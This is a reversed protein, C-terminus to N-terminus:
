QAAAVPKISSVWALNNKGLQNTPEIQLAHQCAAVAEDKRQLIGYAVCLNNHVAFAEPQEQRCRELPVLAEQAKNADLLSRALNLQQLYEQSPPKQEAPATIPQEASASTTTLSEKDSSCALLLATSAIALCASGVRRCLAPSSSVERDRQASPQM